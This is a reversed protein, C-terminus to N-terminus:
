ARKLFSQPGRKCTFSHQTAWISTRPGSVPNLKSELESKPPTSPQCTRIAKLMSSLGSFLILYKDQLSTLM